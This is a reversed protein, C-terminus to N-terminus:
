ENRSNQTNNKIEQLKQWQESTFNKPNNFYDLLVDKNIGLSATVENFSVLLQDRKEIFEKMFESDGIHNDKEEYVKTFAELDSVLSQFGPPIGEKKAQNLAEKITQSNM